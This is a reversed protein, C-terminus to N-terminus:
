TASVIRKIFKIAVFFAVVALALGVLAAGYIAVQGLLSTIGSTVTATPDAVPAAPTVAHSLAPLLAAAPVAVLALTKSKLSEFM